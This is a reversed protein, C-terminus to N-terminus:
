GGSSGNLAPVAPPSALEAPTDPVTTGPPQLQVSLLGSHTLLDMNQGLVAAKASEPEFGEKVLAAITNAEIQTIEAADRADERLFAVDRDDYWLRSATDPPAALVELSGAANRWLPRLTGDAVLRRAAGFNGANLSAGQLGESLAVIAPHIGGAACIRTEGTGQTNKFDLQRMDAGIVTV